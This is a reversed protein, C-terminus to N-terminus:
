GVIVRVNDRLAQDGAPAGRRQMPREGAVGAPRAAGVPLRQVKNEVANDPAPPSHISPTDLSNNIYPAVGRMKLHSRLSGRLVSVSRPAQPWGELSKCSCFCRLILPRAGYILLVGRNKCKIALAIPAEDQPAREGARSPACYIPAPRSPHGCAGRETEM